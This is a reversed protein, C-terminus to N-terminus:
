SKKYIIQSGNKDIKFKQYNIHLKKLKNQLDNHYRDNSILLLTGGGGAGLLKGGLIYKGILENYLQDIKKPYNTIEKKYRWSEHLLKGFNNFDNKQIFNLGLNTHSKIQNLIKIDFTSLKKNSFSYSSSKGERRFFILYCNRELRKEFDRSLNIKKISFDNQKKFKIHNVGGYSPPIQDQYGGSEKIRFRECKIIELSAEKKSFNKKKFTSICKLLGIGFSSSSGLGLGSPLDSDTHLEINRLNFKKFLDRIIPHQILEIKQVNERKSYSLVFNDDFINNRFSIYTYKNIACSLVSGGHKLFYDKVDTGGGFFSVRLPTKSIIM